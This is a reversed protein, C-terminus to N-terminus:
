KLRKISSYYNEYETYLKVTDKGGLGMQHSPENMLGTFQYGYIQEMMDYSRIEKILKSCTKPQLGHDFPFDFIEMDVWFHTQFKSCLAAIQPINNESRAFAFPILIDINPLIQNWEYAHLHFNINNPALAVPKTPTLERIFPTYERFFSVIELYKEDPVPAYGCYLAGMIEESIYWGYLSKHFGYRDNLEKTVAIHWKLSEASFDFWAYMGVGCFVAMDCEDAATLISEIPDKVALDKDQPYLKSPYFAKGDYTRATMTHQNVYHSSSFVNQILVCRVGIKNMSYIQQKWGEDTMVRLGKNFYCGEEESWHYISVWCGDLMCTSLVGTNVIEYSVDQMDLISNDRAFFTVRLQFQGIVNGTSPYVKNLALGPQISFCGLDKIQQPFVAEVKVTVAQESAVRLELVAKASIRRAPVPTMFNGNMGHRGKGYRFKRGFFTCFNFRLRYGSKQLVM